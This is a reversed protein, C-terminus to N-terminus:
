FDQSKDDRFLLKSIETKEIDSLHNRGLPNDIIKGTLRIIPCGDKSAIQRVIIVGSVIDNPQNNHTFLDIFEYSAPTYSGDIIVYYILNTLDIQYDTNNQLGENLQTRKADIASDYKSSLFGVGYIQADQQLEPATIEILIPREKLQIQLDFDKTGIKKDKIIIKEKGFRNMVILEAVFRWFGNENKLESQIHRTIQQSTSHKGNRVTEYLRIGNNIESLLANNVPNEEILLDVLASYEKNAICKRLSRACYKELLSFNSLKEHIKSLDINQLHAREEIKQILLVSKDVLTRYNQMDSPRFPNTVFPSNNAIDILYSVIIQMDNLNQCNSVCKKIFAKLFQLQIMKKPISSHNLPQISSIIMGINDPLFVYVCPPSDYLFWSNEFDKIYKQIYHRSFEPNLNAVNHIQNEVNELQLIKGNKIAQFLFDLIADTESPNLDLQNLLESFKENLFIYEEVKM